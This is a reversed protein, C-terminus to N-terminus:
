EGVSVVGTEKVFKKSEQRTTCSPVPKNNGAIDYNSHFNRMKSVLSLLQVIEEKREKRKKEKRKM